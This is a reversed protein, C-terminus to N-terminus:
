RGVKGLEAGCELRICTAYDYPQDARSREYIPWHYVRWTILCHDRKRRERWQEALFAGMGLAAGFCLASGAQLLYRM